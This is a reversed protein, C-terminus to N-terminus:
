LKRQQAIVRFSFTLYWSVHSSYHSRLRVAIGSRGRRSLRRQRIMVGIVKKKKIFVWNV